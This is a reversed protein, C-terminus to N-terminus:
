NTGEQYLFTELEKLAEEYQFNASMGFKENDLDYVRANQVAEFHKWIDNTAFEEAFMKKVQEPLAHSTRLIIDPAKEVMDEPNINLFDQGNGDGYVNVGGALKVLSGVYSSETAVVYSGPLGMLILVTPAEQENHKQAFDNKFDEFEQHLKEAEEEKGLMKGLALISEYMGETSKLDLFYSEVGINEYQSKLEGELSNPSLVIDPKLSKIIEMDPAMPSGVSEANEYRKPISYSDTKPVGVVGEVELKDLIECTAVSTAVIRKEKTDNDALVADRVSCYSRWVKLYGEPLEPSQKELLLLMQELSYRNSLQEYEAAVASNATYRLLLDVKDFTLAYLFLPEKLRPNEAMCDVLKHVSATQVGALEAVYQKLFGEFTLKRM